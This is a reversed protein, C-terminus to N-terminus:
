SPTDRPGILLGCDSQSTLDRQRSPNRAQGQSWAISRLRCGKPSDLPASPPYMSQRAVGEGWLLYDPCLVVWNKVDHLSVGFKRADVLLVVRFKGNGAVSGVKDGRGKDM